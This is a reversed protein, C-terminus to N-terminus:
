PARRPSPDLRRPRGGDAGRVLIWYTGDTAPLTLVRIGGERFGQLTAPSTTDLAFAERARPDRLPRQREGDREHGPRLEQGDGANGQPANRTPVEPFSGSVASPAMVVAGGRYLNTAHGEGVFM